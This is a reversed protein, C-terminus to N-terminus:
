RDDQTTFAERSINQRLAQRMTELAARPRVHYRKGTVQGASDALFHGIGPAPVSTRVDRLLTQSPGFRAPQRGVRDAAASRFRVTLM